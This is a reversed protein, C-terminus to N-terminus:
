GGAVPHRVFDSTTTITPPPATNGEPSVSEAETEDGRRALGVLRGAALEHAANVGVQDVEPPFVAAVWSCCSQAYLRGLGYVRSIARRAIPLEVPSLSEVLHQDNQTV